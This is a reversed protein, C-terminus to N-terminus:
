YRYLPIFVDKTWFQNSYELITNKLFEDYNIFYKCMNEPGKTLICGLQNIKNKKDKKLALIYEDINSTTFKFNPINKQIIRHFELFASHNILNLKFSIFNALDMGLTIAQGHPIQYNTISEVAHGFTHGYNFIHRISTDFEDIEIILKKTNLSEFIFYQLKVRDNLLEEYKESLEKALKYNKVLFYHYMEGIGSKIESDSLTKLFDNCIYIESPANFTGLLNKFGNFNISSKSGICSDAQALLTTPIFIWNIGRFIISSIFAVIDQVIGGGIAVLISDKKINKEILLQIVESAYNITKNNESPLIKIFNLDKFYKHYLDFINEDVIYIISDNKDLAEIVKTISDSFHVKYKGRIKSTIEIENYMQSGGM